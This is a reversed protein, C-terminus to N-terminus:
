CSTSSSAPASFTRATISKSGASRSPSMYPPTGITMGVM